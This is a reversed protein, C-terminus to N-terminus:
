PKARVIYSGLLGSGRLWDIVEATVLELNAGASTGTSDLFRLVAPPMNSSEEFKIEGLETSTALIGQLVQADLPLANRFRNFQMYLQTYREIAKKNGPHHHNLTTRRQEPALGGFLNNAFYTKWDQRQLADLGSTLADLKSVLNTWRSGQTLVSANGSKQFLNAVKSVTDIAASIEPATSTPVGGARLMERRAILSQLQQARPQLAQRLDELKQAEALGSRVTELHTLRETAHTADTLLM